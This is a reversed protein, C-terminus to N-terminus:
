KHVNEIDSAGRSKSSLIEQADVTIKSTGSARLDAKEVKLNKAQVESAGNADVGLTESSGRVNVHSAGSVEL